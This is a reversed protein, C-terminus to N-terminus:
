LLFSAIIGVNSIPCDNVISGDCNQNNNVTAFSGTSLSNFNYDCDELPIILPFNYTGDSALLLDSFINNAVKSKAVAFTTIQIDQNKLFKIM